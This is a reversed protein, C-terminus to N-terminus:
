GRSPPPGVHTVIWWVNGFPDRVGAFRDGHAATEPELINTAGAALARAFRADCDDVYAYLCSPMPGLPGAPEALMVVSDGINVEAHRVTGDARYRPVGRPSAEFVDQLFAILAVVRDVVLYPTLTHLGFPNQQSAM